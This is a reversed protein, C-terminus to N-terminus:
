RGADRAGGGRAAARQGVRAGPRLVRLLEAVVARRRPASAVHHLVAVCLAADAAGARYPLARADAVAVDAGPVFLGPVGSPAARRAAAAALGAAPRPPAAPRRPPAARRRPTPRARARPGPVAPARRRPGFALLLRWCCAVCGRQPRQGADGRAARRCLVQWHRGRMGGGWGEGRGARGCRRRRRAWGGACLSLPPGAGSLWGRLVVRLVWLFVAFAFVGRAGASRDSGLVAVRKAM